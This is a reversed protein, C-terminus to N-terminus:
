LGFGYHEDFTGALMKQFVNGSGELSSLDDDGWKQQGMDGTGGAVIKNYRIHVRWTPARRVRRTSRDFLVAVFLLVKESSRYCREELMERQRTCTFIGDSGDSIKRKSFESFTRPLAGDREIADLLFNCGHLIRLRIKVFSKERRLVGRARLWNPYFYTDTHKTLSRFLRLHQSHLPEFVSVSYCSMGQVRRSKMTTELFIAVNIAFSTEVVM